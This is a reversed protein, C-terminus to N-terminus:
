LIGKLDARVAEALFHIFERCAKDSSKGTMFKVGNKRQLDILGPFERFSREEMAVDLATCLLKKYHDLENTSLSTVVPKQSSATTAQNTAGRGFKKKAWDRM